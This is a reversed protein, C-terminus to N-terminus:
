AGAVPQGNYTVVASVESYLYIKTFDLLGMSIGLTSLVLLTVVVILVM